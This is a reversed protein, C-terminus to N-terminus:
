TVSRMEKVVPEIGEITTATIPALLIATTGDESLLGFQAAQDSLPSQIPALDPLEAIAAEDAAIKERDADTLGTPNQYVVLAPVTRGNDFRTQSQELVKTSDANSPLFTTSDNQTVSNLQAQLPGFGAAVILWALLVVYKSRRGAVIRALTQM